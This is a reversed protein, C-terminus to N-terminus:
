AAQQAEYNLILSTVADESSAGRVRACFDATRLLRSAKALAQLHDAGADQPALLAFVLDVPKEDIATFDVAEDLTAFITYVRDIDKLRAHPIAIGAGMGTSGLNERETLRDFIDREDQSTLQAFTESLKQLLQKKSSAKLHFQVADPRQMDFGQFTSNPKQTFDPRVVVM